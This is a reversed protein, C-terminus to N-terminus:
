SKVIVSYLEVYQKIERLSLEKSKAYQTLIIEKDTSEKEKNKKFYSIKKSSVRPFVACFLSYLDNKNNFVSLYKNLYNSLIAMNPSYMSIWRNVLFPSFANEEDVNSLLKKKTFLINSLIDFITM